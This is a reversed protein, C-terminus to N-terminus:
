KRLDRPHGVRHVSGTVRLRLRGLVGLEFDRARKGITRISRMDKIFTLYQLDIASFRGTAPEYDFPLTGGRDEFHINLATNTAVIADEATLSGTTKKLAEIVPAREEDVQLSARTIVRSPEACLEEAIIEFYEFIPSPM